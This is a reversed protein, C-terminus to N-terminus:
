RKGFVDSVLGFINYSQVFCVVMFVAADIEDIGEM